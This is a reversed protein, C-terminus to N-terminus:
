VLIPTPSSTEEAQMLQALSTGGFDELVMVWRNSDRELSYTNVVGAQNLNCIVEYERKFWAIKEPPPYLEKLIKLIVSQKDLQRIGRYVLSNDSEHLKKTIQYGSFTINM